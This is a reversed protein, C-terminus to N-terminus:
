SFIFRWSGALLSAGVAGASLAGSAIILAWDAGRMQQPRAISRCALAGFGRADMATALRTGRRVAGVLLALLMGFGIRGAVILSGGAAVGRARRALGLTQWEGAMIPLLRAAALAGIAVRPSLHAQQQLADALRTPDTTVVALLGALAIALLRLGLALGGILNPGSASAPAFVVNLVGVSAAAALIPWSRALLHRPALGSFSIAAALGILVLAPTLPDDSVFLATMPIAAAALKALPNARALVATPDPRLPTFLRM